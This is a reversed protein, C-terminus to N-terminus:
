KMAELAAKAADRKKSTAEDHDAWSEALSRYARKMLVLKKADSTATGDENTLYGGKRDDTIYV